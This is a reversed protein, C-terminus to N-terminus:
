SGHQIAMQPRDPQVTNKEMIENVARDEPPFLNNAM